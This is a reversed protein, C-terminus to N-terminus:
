AHTTIIVELHGINDSPVPAKTQCHLKKSM